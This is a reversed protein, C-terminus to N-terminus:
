MINNVTKYVKAFSQELALVMALSALFKALNPSILILLVCSANMGYM